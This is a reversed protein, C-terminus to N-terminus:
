KFIEIIFFVVDGIAIITGIIFVMFTFARRINDKASRQRPTRQEKKTRDENVGSFKGQKHHIVTLLPLVYLLLNFSFLLPPLTILILFLWFNILNITILQTSSLLAMMITLFSIIFFPVSFRRIKLNFQENVIQEEVFPHLVQLKKM